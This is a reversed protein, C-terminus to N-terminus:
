KHRDPTEYRNLLSSKYIEPKYSGIRVIKASLGLRSCAEEIKEVSAPQDYGLCIVDPRVEAFVAYRDTTSGLVAHYGAELLAKLRAQEDHLPLRGKVKEVTVDRAVVVTLEGFKAAEDLYFRHGPHLGDFTGFALVRPM